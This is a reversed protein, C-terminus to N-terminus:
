SFEILSKLSIDSNQLKDEFAKSADDMKYIKIEKLLPSLDIEELLKSVKGFMYNNLRSGLFDVEKKILQSISIPVEKDVIGLIVVRGAASTYYIAEKITKQLGAAEIVVPAGEGNTLEMVKTELDEKQSNIIYDAGMEQALELKSDDIDAAIVTAGKYKAVITAMLGITGTGIILVTDDETVDARYTSEFGISLPEGLAALRPDVGKPVKYVNGKPVAIYEQFGGDTHAGFVKVDKCVNHRDNKCAYCDGCNLVPDILVMDGNNLDESDNNNEVYGVLEHGLTIPFDVFPSEGEYAHLDSGCVGGYKIKILVEENKINPISKEKIILNRPEKLVISKMIKGGNIKLGLLICITVM